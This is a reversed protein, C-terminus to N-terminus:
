SDVEQRSKYINIEQGKKRTKKLDGHSQVVYDGGTKERSNWQVM